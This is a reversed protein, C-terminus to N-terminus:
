DLFVERVEWLGPLVKLVGVFKSELIKWFPTLYVLKDALFQRLNLISFVVLALLDLVEEALLIVYFKTEGQTQIELVLELLVLLEELCLFPGWFLMWRGLVIVVSGIIVWIVFVVVVVVVTWHV